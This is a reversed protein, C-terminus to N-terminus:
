RRHLCRVDTAHNLIPGRRRLCCGSPHLNLSQQQGPMRGPRSRTAILVLGESASCFCVHISNLSAPYIPLRRQEPTPCRVHDTGAYQEGDDGDDGARQQLPTSETSLTIGHRPTRAVLRTKRQRRVAKQRAYGQVVSCATGSRGERGV